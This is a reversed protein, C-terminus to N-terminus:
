ELLGVKQLVFDKLMQHKVTYCKLSDGQSTLESLLFIFMQVTAHANYTDVINGKNNILFHLSLVTKM